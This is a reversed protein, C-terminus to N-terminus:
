YGGSNFDIKYDKLSVREVGTTFTGDDNLEFWRYGPMTEDLVFDDNHPKFQICTSPTSYLEVHAHKGAYVQHVHGWILGKVQPYHSLLELLAGNNRITYSDMWASGVDVPQHHVFILTHKDSAQLLQQLRQMESAALDGHVYGPVSSDLLVCQWEGLDVSHFFLQDREIAAMSAALDHNGPCWGVPTDFASFIIDLFRQYATDAGNNSIDGTALMLDINDERSRILALVDALSEDTDMGLLRDGIEAGLHCDTIQILRM